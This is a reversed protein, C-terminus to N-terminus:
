RVTGSMLAATSLILHVLLRAILLWLVGAASVTGAEALYADVPLRGLKM